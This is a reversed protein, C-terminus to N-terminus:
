VNAKLSKLEQEEANLDHKAIRVDEKVAQKQPKLVAKHAHPATRSKATVAKRAKRNAHKAPKGAKAQAAAGAKGVTGQRPAADALTATAFVIAAISGILKTM